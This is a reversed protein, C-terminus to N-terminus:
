EDRVGKQQSIGFRLYCIGPMDSSQRIFELLWFRLDWAFKISIMPFLLSSQENFIPIKILKNNM